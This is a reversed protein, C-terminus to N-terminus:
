QCREVINRGYMAVQPKVREKRELSFAGTRSYFSTWIEIYTLTITSCVMAKRESPLTKGERAEKVEQVRRKGKMGM